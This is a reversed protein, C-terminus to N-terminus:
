KDNNNIEEIKKSFKDLDKKLTKSLQLGQEYLEISKDLGIDDKELKDVIDELKKMKSEFTTESM